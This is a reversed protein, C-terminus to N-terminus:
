RVRFLRLGGRAGWLALRRARAMSNTPRRAAVTSVVRVHAFGSERISAEEDRKLMALKSNRMPM